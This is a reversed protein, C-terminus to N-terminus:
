NQRFILSLVFDVRKALSPPYAVRAPLVLFQPQGGTTTHGGFRVRKRLKEGFNSTGRLRAKQSKKIEM